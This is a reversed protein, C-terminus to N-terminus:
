KICCLFNIYPCFRQVVLATHPITHALLLLALFRFLWAGYTAGIVCNNSFNKFSNRFFRTKTAHMKADSEVEVCIYMYFQDCSSCKFMESVFIDFIFDRVFNKPGKIFNFHFTQTYPLFSFLASCFIIAPIEPSHPWHGYKFQTFTHRFHPCCSIANINALFFTMWYSFSFLFVVVVATYKHFNM